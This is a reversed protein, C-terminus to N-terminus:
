ELISYHTNVCEKLTETTEIQKQGKIQNKHRNITLDMKQHEIEHGIKSLRMSLIEMQTSIMCLMLNPYWGIVVQINSTIGMAILQYIFVIFYDKFNDTWKLPYWAPFALMYEPELICKIVTFLHAANTMIFDMILLIYVFKLKKNFYAQEAQTKLEFNEITQKLQQMSRIRYLFNIIKFCLALETLAMYMTGSLQAVPTFAVLQIIMSLTFLFSCILMNLIGYIRYLHNSEKPWMGCWRFVFVIPNTVKNINFQM